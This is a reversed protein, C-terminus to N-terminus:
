ENGLGRLRRLEATIANLAEASVQVQRFALGLFMASSITLTVVIAIICLATVIDM